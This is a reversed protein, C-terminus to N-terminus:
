RPAETPAADPRALEDDLLRLLVRLDDARFRGFAASWATEVFAGVFLSPEAAVLATLRRDADPPHPLPPTGHVLADNIYWRAKRLDDRPTGKLDRRLVYKLANGLAFGLHRCLEIAEVGSPHSRYHAPDVVSVPADRASV